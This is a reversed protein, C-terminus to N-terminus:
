IASCCFAVRCAFFLYVDSSSFGQRIVAFGKDFLSLLQSPDVDDDSFSCRVCCSKSIFFGFDNRRDIDESSELNKIFWALAGIDVVDGDRGGIESM